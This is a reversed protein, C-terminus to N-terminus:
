EVVIATTNSDAKGQSMSTISALSTATTDILGIILAMSIHHQNM